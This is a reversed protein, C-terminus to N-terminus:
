NSPLMEQICSVLMDWDRFYHVEGTTVHQVKDCWEWHDNLRERWLRVTLLESQRPQERPLASLPEPM